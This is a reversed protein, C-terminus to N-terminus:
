VFKFKMKVDYVIMEINILRRFVKIVRVFIISLIIFWMEIHCLLCVYIEHIAVLTAIRPQKSKLSAEDLGTFRLNTLIYRPIRTVFIYHRRMRVIAYNRHFHSTIRASRRSPNMSLHRTLRNLSHGHASEAFLVISRLQLTVSGRMTTLRDLDNKKKDTDLCKSLFM